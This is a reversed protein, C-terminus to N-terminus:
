AGAIAAAIEVLVLTPLDPGRASVIAYRWDRSLELGGGIGDALFTLQRREGPSERELLWLQANGRRDRASVVAFAGGNAVAAENGEGLDWPDRGDFGRWEIRSAGGDGAGASVLVGGGSLKLLEFEGVPLEMLAAAKPSHAGAPVQIVTWNEAARQAVYLDGYANYAMSVVEFTDLLLPEPRARSDGAISVRVLQDGKGSDARVALAAETADATVAARRLETPRGGIAGRLDAGSAVTRGYSDGSVLADGRVLAPDAAGNTGGGSVFFYPEEAGSEEVVPASGALLRIPAAGAVAWPPVGVRVSSSEPHIALIGASAPAERTLEVAFGSAGAAVITGVAYGPFNCRVLAVGDSEQAIEAASVTDTWAAASQDWRAVTGLAYNAFSRRATWQGAAAMAAVVCAGAMWLRAVAPVRGWASVARSWLGRAEGSASDIHTTTVSSPTPIADRFDRLSSAVTGEEFLAEGEIVRRCMEAVLAASKPRNAPKKEILFAVLREVDGPIEPVFESLRAPPQAVIKRILDVPSNAEYPLRGSLMQFLVVGLSYLDSSTTVDSKSCREPAMYHPTGLRSGEVTLQTEATLVKAIGFDTVYAHDNAGLLINGPKIDRHIIHSDHACALADAVQEAIHLARKWPFYRVRKMAVSLTAGEIFEMAIYPIRGVAGVAYIHVVNPHSLSAIAEAERQFRAAIQKNQRLDEKLVKLAVIRDLATDQARYVVGMGGQGVTEIIDYVGFM